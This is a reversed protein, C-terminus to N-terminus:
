SIKLGYLAFNGTDINGSSCNFRVGTIASTTEVVGTIQDYWPANDNQQYGNLFLQYPKLFTTDAPHWFYMRGDLSAKADNGQDEFLWVDGTGSTSVNGHIAFSDGTGALNNYLYFGAQSKDVNYNTGDSTVNFTFEEADTEINVRDLVIMYMDYTGDFVVDSTGHVFTISSSGSAVVRKILQWAGGSISTHDTGALNLTDCYLTGDFYGDKFELSSTGVDYTNDAAPIFHGASTISLKKTAAESAGTMFDISTANSSSSHNGEARAQIAASVLIADTGTGEDPAQFALKGIVDDAALDTEGTQLTLVIPKDDATATHKLNLGTDAVHTIKIEQDNGFYIVGSDAIYIDSWENAAAGLAGGDASSPYVAGDKLTVSDIAVGNASTYESVTDVRITSM